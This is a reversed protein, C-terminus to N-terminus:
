DHKGSPLNGFLSNLGEAMTNPTRGAAVLIDSGELTRHGVTGLACRLTSM